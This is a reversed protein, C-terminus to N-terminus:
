PLLNYSSIRPPPQYSSYLEYIELCKHCLTARTTDSIGHQKLDDPHAARSYPVTIGCWTPSVRTQLPAIRYDIIHFTPNTM